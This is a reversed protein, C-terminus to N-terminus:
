QSVRVAYAIAGTFNLLAMYFMWDLSMRYMQTRWGHLVLGHVIFAIASLGLGAYM